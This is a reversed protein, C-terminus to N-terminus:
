SKQIVNMSASKYTKIKQMIYVSISVYILIALIAYSIVFLTITISQQKAFVFLALVLVIRIINILLFVKQGDFINLLQMLPASTFQFLLYFAMISAFIGAPKWEEGFFLQFLDSGFLILLITPGAGLLFLRKQTGVALRLIKSPDRKGIAAAEGYMAKGLSQGFLNLPLAIVTFALALQGTSQADYLIAALLIPARQAFVLLIQSPLRYIPFGSHRAALLKIRTWQIGSIGNLFDRRFERIMTIIGGSQAFVQGVLLGIAGIGSFGLAIKVLAGSVSQTVGTRAIIKYNRKRTAWLNLIEYGGAGILGIVILWWWTALTEMAFLSLLDEAWVALAVAIASVFICMLGFSLAVLNVALTDNRPLPVAIVYRLTLVPLLVAILATFVAMVGFDEPSYLRTIIPISIVGVGKALVRGTALTAMGRFVGSVEGGFFRRLVRKHRPVVTPQEKLEQTM